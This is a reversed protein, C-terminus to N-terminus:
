EKPLECASGDRMNCFRWRTKKAWYAYAQEVDEWSNLSKWAYKGGGRRDVAAALIEGTQSDTAEEEASASGVLAETGTLQKKGKSMLISGPHVATVNDLVPINKGAQTIGVRIRM